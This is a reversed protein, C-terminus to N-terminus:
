RHLQEHERQVIAPEGPWRVLGGVVVRHHLRRSCVWAGFDFGGQAQAQTQVVAPAAVVTRFGRALPVQEPGGAELIQARVVGISLRHQHSQFCLFTKETLNFDKASKCTAASISPM